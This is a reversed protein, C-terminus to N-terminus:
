PLPVVANELEAVSELAVVRGWRYEVNQTLFRVRVVPDGGGRRRYGMDSPGVYGRFILAVWSGAKDM